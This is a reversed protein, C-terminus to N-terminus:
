GEGRRERRVQQGAELAVHADVGLGPAVARLARARGALELEGALLAALELQGPTSPCQTRDRASQTDIRVYRELRALLDPAIAEAVPSTYHAM